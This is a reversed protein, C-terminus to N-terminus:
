DSAFWPNGRIEDRVAGSIRQLERYSRPRLESTPPHLRLRGFPREGSPPCSPCRFGLRLHIALEPIPNKRDAPLTQHYATYDYSTFANLEGGNRNVRLMLEGSGVNPTGKFMMHEVWHSVGTIGPLENRSGVRYFVWFSAVPADFSPYLLVELGNGLTSRRLNQIDAM